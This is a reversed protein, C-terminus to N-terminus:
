SAAARGRPSRYAAPVGPGTPSSVPVVPSRNRCKLCLGFSVVVPVIVGHVTLPPTMMVAPYVGSATFRCHDCCRDELTGTVSATVEATCPLCRIKSPRCAMWRGPEPALRRVHACLAITGDEVGRCFMGFVIDAPSGASWQVNRQPMTATGDELDIVPASAYECFRSAMDLAYAIYRPDQGALWGAVADVDGPNDIVHQPPQGVEVWEGGPLKVRKSNSM